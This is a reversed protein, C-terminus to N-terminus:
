VLDMVEMISVISGALGKFEQLDLNDIDVDFWKNTDTGDNYTNSAFVYRFKWDGHLTLSQPSGSIEQTRAADTYIHLTLTTGSKVITLYYQTNM